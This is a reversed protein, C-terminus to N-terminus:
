PRIAPEARESIVLLPFAFHWFMSDDEDRKQEKADRGWAMRLFGPFKCFIKEFHDM